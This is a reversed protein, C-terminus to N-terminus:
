LVLRVMVDSSVDCRVSFGIVSREAVYASTSTMQHSKVSIVM